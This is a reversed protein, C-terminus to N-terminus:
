LDEQRHASEDAYSVTYGLLEDAKDMASQLDEFMTLSSLDTGLLIFPEAVEPTMGTLVIEAGILRAAAITHNLYNAAVADIEAVGTMDAVVVKARHTKIGTLLQECLKRVRQSDLVGIIPLIVLRNRVPLLPTSLELISRRQEGIIREHENLFGSAVTLAIRNAAPEYIDLVHKMLQPCKGYHSFLSRAMVDRLLLVIAIVEQTGVGLPLIRASLEQAYFELAQISGTELTALYNEYIAACEKKIEDPTMSSMLNERAIKRMWINCLRMRRKRLFDILEAM